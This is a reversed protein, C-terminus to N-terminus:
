RDDKIARYATRYGVYATALLSVVIADGWGVQFPSYGPSFALRVGAVPSHTAYTHVLAEESVRLIASNEYFQTMRNQRWRAFAGDGLASLRRHGYEHRIATAETAPNLGRRIVVSGDPRTGGAEGPKLEGPKAYRWPFKPVPLDSREGPLHLPSARQGALRVVTSRAGWYALALGITGTVWKGEKYSGYASYAGAGSLGLGALSPAWRFLPGLPAALIVAQGVDKVEFSGTPHEGSALQAAQMATNFGGGLAGARALTGVWGGAKAGVVIPAGAIALGTALTAAVTAIGFMRSTQAQRRRMQFSIEGLSDEIENISDTLGTIRSVGAKVSLNDFDPRRHSTVSTGMVRAFNVWESKRNFFGPRNQSDQQIGLLAVYGLRVKQAAWQMKARLQGLRKDIATPSKDRLAMYESRLDIGGLLSLEQNIDRQIEWRAADRNAELDDVPNDKLDIELSERASSVRIWQLELDKLNNALVHIHKLAGRRNESVQDEPSLKDFEKRHARRFYYERYTRNAKAYRGGLRDLHKRVNKALVSGSAALRDLEAEVEQERQEILREARRLVILTGRRTAAAQLLALLERRDKMRWEAIDEIGEALKKRSRVKAKETLDDIVKAAEAGVEKAFETAAEIGRLFEPILQERITGWFPFGSTPPSDSPPASDPPRGGTKPPSTAPHAITRPGDDPSEDDDDKKQPAVVTRRESNKKDDGEQSAGDAKEASSDNADSPPTENEEDASGGADPGQGATPASGAEPVVADKPNGTGPPVQPPTKGAHKSIARGTGDDAKKNKKKNKKKAKKKKTKNKKGKNKKRNKWAKIRKLHEALHEPKLVCFCIQDPTCIPDKCEWCALCPNLFVALAKNFANQADTLNNQATKSGPAKGAAIKALKLQQKAADLTSEMGQWARDREEDTAKPDYRQSSLAVMHEAAARMWAAVDATIRNALGAVQKQRLARVKQLAKKKWKNEAAEIQKDLEKLKKSAFILARGAHTEALPSIKISGSGGPRAANASKLVGAAKSQSRLLRARKKELRKLKRAAKKQRRRDGAKRADEQEAQTADIEAQVGALAITARRYTGVAGAVGRDFASTVVTGVLGGDAVRTGLGKQRKKLKTRKKALREIRRFSVAATIKGDVAMFKDRETRIEEDIKHIELAIKALESGVRGSEARKEARKRESVEFGRIKRLSHDIVVSRASTARADAALARGRQQEARRRARGRVNEPLKEDHAQKAYERYKRWASESRRELGPLSAEQGAVFGPRRSRREARLQAKAVNRRARRLAKLARAKLNDMSHVGLRGSLGRVMATDTELRAAWPKLTQSDAEAVAEAAGARELLDRGHVVAPLNHPTDPTPTGLKVFLNGARSLESAKSLTLDIEATASDVYLRNQEIRELARGLELLLGEGGGGGMGRPGVGPKRPGAVPPKGTVQPPVVVGKQRTPLKTPVAAPPTRTSDGAGAARDNPPRSGPATAINRATQFLPVEDRSEFRDGQSCYGSAMSKAAPVAPRQTEADAGAREPAHEGGRQQPTAADGAVMDRFRRRAGFGIRDPVRRSGCRNLNLGASVREYQERLEDVTQFANWPTAEPIADIKPRALGGGGQIGKSDGRLAQAPVGDQITNGSGAGGKGIPGEPGAAM